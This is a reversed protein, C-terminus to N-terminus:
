ADGKTDDEGDGTVGWEDQRSLHKYNDYKLKKSTPNVAYSAKNNVMLDTLTKKTKQYFNEVPETLDEPNPQDSKLTPLYQMESGSKTGALKWYFASSVPAHHLNTGDATQATGKQVIHTALLLQPKEANKIQTTTATAGTKYDSVQYTNDTMIDVRDARATLRVTQTPSLKMDYYGNLEAHSYKITPQRHTEQGVFWTAIREFRPYWFGMIDPDNQVVAFSNKGMQLLNQLVTDPTDTGFGTPYKQTYHELAEHIYNGINARSIEQGVDDLKHLNLIKKAYIGYPNIFLTELDSVSIKALPHPNEGQLNPTPNPQKLQILDGNWNDLQTQWTAHICPQLKPLNAINIVAQIRDIWPCAITPQGGLKKARTLHVVPASFAQVFDHASLGMQREPEPLGLDSKMPRSLWPDPSPTPPFIDQNLGGLIVVDARVMRSELTGLIKIRPSTDHTARATQTALMKQMLGDYDRATKCPLNKPTLPITHQQMDALLQAVARGTDGAWLLTAGDTDPTTALHEAITIHHAIKQTITQTSDNLTDYLDQLPFLADVAQQAMPIHPKKNTDFPSDSNALNTLANRYGQVGGMPSVGRLIAHELARAMHRIQAPEHGGAMLPHKLLALVSVPSFDDRLVAMILRLFLGTQTQDLPIGASDDANINWRKLTALVQRSLTRDPTILAVTKQPLNQAHAIANQHAIDRMILAITQSEEQPSNLESLTINETATQPLNQTDTEWLHTRDAPRMIQTLFQQRPTPNTPTNQPCLPTVDAVTINFKQLLKFLGCQPHTPDALIATQEANDTITTDLGPVIVHGNPLGAVTNMFDAIAPISGTSGAVIITGTPPCQQWIKIQTKILSDRRQIGDSANHATLIDQWTTGILKLFKLNEQWHEAGADPSLNELATHSIGNTTMKDLLTCLSQSLGMIHSLPPIDNPQQTAYLQQVLTAMLFQRQLDPMSPPLILPTDGVSDLGMAHTAFILEDADMDGLPLITPLIQATGGGLRVFSERLGAVARRTPVFLTANAIDAGHTNALDVIFQGVTDVFCHNNPVSLVTKQPSNNATM